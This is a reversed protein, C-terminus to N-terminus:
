SESCFIIVIAQAPVALGLNFACLGAFLLSRLFVKSMM